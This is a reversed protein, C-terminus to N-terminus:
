VVKNAASSSAEMAEETEWFTIAVLKGTKQNTLIYSGKMAELGKTSSENFYRTIKELQNPKGMFTSVRAFM